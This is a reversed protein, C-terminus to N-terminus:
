PPARQRTRKRHENNSRYAKNQHADGASVLCLEASSGCRVCMVCKCEWVCGQNLGHLRVVGFSEVKKSVMSPPQGTGVRLFDVSKAHTRCEVRGAGFCHAVDPVVSRVM